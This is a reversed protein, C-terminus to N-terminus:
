RREIVFKGFGVGLDWGRGTGALALSIDGKTVVQANSSRSAGAHVEAGGYTGILDNVSYAGTFRGRGDSVTSKGVTLGGGKASIKVPISAGNDCTITGTGTATKYFISWGSLNFRLECDINGAAHASPAVVAAALLLAGALIKM